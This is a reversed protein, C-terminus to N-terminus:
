ILKKASLCVRLQLNLLPSLLHLLARPHLVQLPILISLPLQSHYLELSLRLQDGLSEPMPDARQLHPWPVSVKTEVFHTGLFSQLRTGQLEMWM